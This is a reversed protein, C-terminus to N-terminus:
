WVLTGGVLPRESMGDVTQDVYNLGGRVAGISSGARGLVFDLGRGYGRWDALLEHSIGDPFAVKCGVASLNLNLAGVLAASQARGLRILWQYLSSVQLALFADPNGGGPLIEPMSGIVSGGRPAHWTAIRAAAGEVLLESIGLPPFSAVARAMLKRQAPTSATRIWRGVGSDGTLAYTQLPHEVTVHPAVAMLYSGHWCGGEAARAISSQFLLSTELYDYIPGQGDGAQQVVIVEPTWGHAEVLDDVARALFTVGEPSEGGYSWTLIRLSPM